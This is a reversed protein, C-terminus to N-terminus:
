IYVTNRRPVVCPSWSARHNQVCRYVAFGVLACVAAILSAAGSIVLVLAWVPFESTKRKGDSPGVTTSPTTTSPAIAAGLCLVSVIALAGVAAYLKLRVKSAPKSEPM